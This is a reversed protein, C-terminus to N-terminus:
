SPDQEHGYWVARQLRTDGFRRNWTPGFGPPWELLPERAAREVVVVAQPALWGECLATLVDGVGAAPLDYPPDMLVLDVPSPTRRLYDRVGSRIVVAGPLGVARVNAEVVSVAAVSSDVLVVRSAGRSLAELGLAGSGAYLDLVDSGAIEILADLASFLSERVRDSTPRTGAAPVKLRRGRAEGAIIRTM